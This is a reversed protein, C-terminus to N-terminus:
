TPSSSSLFICVMWEGTEERLLCKNYVQWTHLVLFISLNRLRPMTSMKAVRSMQTTSPTTATRHMTPLKGADKAEALHRGGAGAWGLKHCDFIAVSHSGNPDLSSYRM